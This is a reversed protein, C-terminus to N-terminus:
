SENILRRLKEAAPTLLDDYITLTLAEISPEYRRDDSEESCAITQLSAVAMNMTTIIMAAIREHDLTVESEVVRVIAEKAALAAQHSIDALATARAEIQEPTAKSPDFAM